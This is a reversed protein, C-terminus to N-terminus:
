MKDHGGVLFSSLHEMKKIKMVYGKLIGSGVQLYPFFANSDLTSKRHFQSPKLWSHYFASALM